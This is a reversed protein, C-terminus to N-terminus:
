FFYSRVKVEEKQLRYFIGCITVDVLTMNKVSLKLYNLFGIKKDAKIHIIINNYQSFNDLKIPFQVSELFCEM